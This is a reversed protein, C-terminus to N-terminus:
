IRDGALPPTTKPIKVNDTVAEFGSGIKILTPESWPRGLIELGIPLGDSTFGSPVILAPFGIIPSLQNPVYFTDPGRPGIKIPGHLKHPYILADLDYRDMLAIVAERLAARAHMVSRFDADRDLDIPNELLLADNDKTTIGAHGTLLESATKFPYDPGQRRLYWDVMAMREYRWPNIGPITNRLDLGISLGYVVRAGNAAFVDISKQGLKIGEDTIPPFDAVEKLVGVRAGKLGEPDLFSIYKEKPMMGLSRATWLDNPDFGAIADLVAVIDYMSRGMPGAREGTIYSGMQGDRSLLGSTTSFGYLNSDSSPTRVSFGTESGIAVQTMRASVAAGSGSSSYGPVRTLDFPNLSVGGLTSKTVIDTQAFWDSQNTKGIIIAGADRLKKVIFADKDPIVGKLPLYGGTTPMDYTDLVDKLAIPIGHLPSRPGKEKRELDLAKAEALANESVYLYANIKPGKKEYADIRKLYLSVLKESTLAGSDFADNIDKINATHLDFKAQQAAAAAAMAAFLAFLALARAASSKMRNAYRLNM